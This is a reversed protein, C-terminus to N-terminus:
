SNPTQDKKNYKSIFNLTKEIYITLYRVNLTNEYNSKDFTIKPPLAMLSFLLHQESLTLPYKSQYLDFLATMELHKYENHYFTLFDYIVLDKNYNDWNTLYLENNEEKLNKLNLNKHLMATRLNKENQQISYWDNLLQESTTLLKYVNSSNRLYLYEAPALYVNEEMRDHIAYYYDKLRNINDKAEEYIQKIRDLNQEEYTTTKTHLLAMLYILDQAKDTSPVNDNINRYLEYSATEEIPELFHNFNRSRLYEYLEQKPRKKTQKIYQNNNQYIIRNM